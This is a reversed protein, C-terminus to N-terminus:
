HWGDTILEDNTLLSFVPKRLFNRVFSSETADANAVERHTDVVKGNSNIISWNLDTVLMGEYLRYWITERLTGQDYGKRRLTEMGSSGDEISANFIIAVTSKSADQEPSAVHIQITGAHSPEIFDSTLTSTGGHEHLFTQVSTVFAQGASRADEDSPRDGSARMRNHAIERLAKYSIAHPEARRVIEQVYRMEADGVEKGQLGFERELAVNEAEGKLIAAQQEDIERMPLTGARPLDKFLIGSALENRQMFASDGEKSTDYSYTIGDRTGGYVFHLDIAKFNENWSVNVDAQEGHEQKYTLHLRRYNGDERDMHDAYDAYAQIAEDVTVDKRGLVAARREPDPIETDFRKVTLYHGPGIDPPAEQAASLEGLYTVDESGPEHIEINPMGAQAKPNIPIGEPVHHNWEDAPDPPIEKM